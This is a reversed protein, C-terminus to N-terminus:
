DIGYVRAEEAIGLGLQYGDLFLEADGQRPHRNAIAHFAANHELHHLHALEHVLVADLVWDPVNRLRVSLRIEGSSPSCSAWRRQQNSVFRVAAPLRGDTYLEALVRAREELAADHAGSQPREKMARRVLEEIFSDREAGRLRSPIAVVIRTGAWHASGTKTRRPSARVELEPRDFSAPVVTVRTEGVTSAM